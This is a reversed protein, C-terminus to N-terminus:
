LYGLAKLQELVIAESEPDLAVAEEVVGAASVVQDTRTPSPRFWSTEFIGEPLRGELDSPLPVGLSYLVAPAVDLISLDRMEASQTIGAGAAIFIGDPRHTGIANQRAKVVENSRLVSVFGYDRLVLTLDPGLQTHAGPFAEERTFVDRVVRTETIPDVLSLLSQMVARRTSAYDDIPIGPRGAEAIRFYVGNSGATLSFANTQSWDLLSTAPLPGGINLMEDQALQADSSWRLLGLRELLVNVYLIQDTPGFGHDSVIYLATESDLTSALDGLMSDVMRFYDLCLSRIKQEWQSPRSPFLQPDLFRWCAHQIKDVGDLVIAALDWEETAMLYRLAGFWSRERETHYSVWAEVEDPPLVQVSRREREYDMALHRLQIGQVGALTDYLRTPFMGHRLHRQPVLGAIVCGAVPQPPFTVPFNLCLVRLGHDSVMSWLTQARIDSSVALSYRPQSGTRDLSVFDFIGHNGPSRGTALSTWAPPTLPNVTSWLRGHVGAAVVSRLCPMVGEAMLGDLITFTAGDLGILLTRSM